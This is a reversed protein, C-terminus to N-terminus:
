AESIHTTIGHKYIRNLADRLERTLDDIADRVELTAYDRAVKQQSLIEEPSEMIYTPYRSGKRMLRSNAEEPIDGMRREYDHIPLIEEIRDRHISAAKGAPAQTYQILM